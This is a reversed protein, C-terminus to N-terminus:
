ANVAAAIQNIVTAEPHQWGRDLACRFPPLWSRDAMLRSDFFTKLLVSNALTHFPLHSQPGSTSIENM